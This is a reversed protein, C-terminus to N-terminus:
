EEFRKMDAKKLLKQVLDDDDVEADVFTRKAKVSLTVADLDNMAGLVCITVIDKDKKIKDYIKDRETSLEADVAGMLKSKLYDYFINLSQVQEKRLKAPLTDIIYSIGFRGNLYQGFSNIVTLYRKAVKTDFVSLEVEKDVLFKKMYEILEYVTKYFSALVELIFKNKELVMTSDLKGGFREALNTNVAMVGNEIIQAYVGEDLGIFGKFTTLDKVALTQIQETFDQVSCDFTSKYNNYSDSADNFLKTYKDLERLISECEISDNLTDTHKAVLLKSCVQMGDSDLADLSKKFEAEIEAIEEMRNKIVEKKRSLLEDVAVRDSERQELNARFYEINTCVPIIQTIDDLLEKVALLVDEGLCIQMGSFIAMIEPSSLTRKSFEYIPSPLIRSGIKDQFYINTYDM